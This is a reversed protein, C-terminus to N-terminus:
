NTHSLPYQPGIAVSAQVAHSAPFYLAAASVSALRTAVQRAQTSVFVFLPVIFVADVARVSQRLFIKKPRVTSYDLVMRYQNVSQQGIKKM